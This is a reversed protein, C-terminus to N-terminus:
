EGCFDSIDQIYNRSVPIETSNVILNKLNFKDIKSKNVVFARHIQIFVTAPLQEMIQKITSRIKYVKGYTYVLLYNKDAEFYCIDDTRIEINFDGDKVLLTPQRDKGAALRRTGLEIAAILDTTKFPKTIYSYPATAVAKIMVATNDYATLYAFPVGFKEKIEQGLSIGNREKQGLNIDLIVFDINNTKLLGLAEDANKAGLVQYGNESLVKQSLRRNLFDDEVLLITKKGM